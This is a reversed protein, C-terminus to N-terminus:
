SFCCFRVKVPLTEELAEMTLPALKTPRRNHKAILNIRPKEDFCVTRYGHNIQTADTKEEEISEDEEEIEPLGSFDAIRM